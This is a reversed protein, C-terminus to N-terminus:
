SSTTNGPSNKVGYEHRNTSQKENWSLIDTDNTHKMRYDNLTKELDSESTSHSSNYVSEGREVRYREVEIDPKDALLM